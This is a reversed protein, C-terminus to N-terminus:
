KLRDPLDIGLQNIAYALTEELKAIRVVPDVSKRRLTPWGLDLRLRGLTSEPADIGANVIAKRRLDKIGLEVLEDKNSALFAIIKTRETGKM